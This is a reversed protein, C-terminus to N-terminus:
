DPDGWAGGASVVSGVGDLEDALEFGDEQGWGFLQGEDIPSRSSSIGSLPVRVTRASLSGCRRLGMGESPASVPQEEAPLLVASDAGELQDPLGAGLTHGRPAM